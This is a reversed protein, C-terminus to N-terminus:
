EWNEKQIEIVSTLIHNEWMNLLGRLFVKSNTPVTRLDLGKSGIDLLSTLTLTLTIKLKPYFCSNKRVQPAPNSLCASHSIIMITQIGLCSHCQLQPSSCLSVAHCKVVTGVIRIAYVNQADRSM